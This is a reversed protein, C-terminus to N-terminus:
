ARWGEDESFLGDEAHKFRTRLAAGLTYKLLGRRGEDLGTISSGRQARLYARVPIRPKSTNMVYRGAVTTCLVCARDHRELDLVRQDERAQHEAVMEDTVPSGWSLAGGVGDDSAPPQWGEEWRREFESEIIRDHENM